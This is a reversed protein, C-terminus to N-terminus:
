WNQYRCMQFAFKVAEGCKYGISPPHGVKKSCPDTLGTSCKVTPPSTTGGCLNIEAGVGLAFPGCEVGAEILISDTAGGQANPDIEVGGGLGAGVEFCTSWGKEGHCVKAGAGIGYYFNGGVCWLGLPDRFTVPSNGVYSYLNFQGGDFLVPDRSTWRGSAPEYDRYGFHVLGTEPDALGGAFGIPLFFGPDSDSLVAGFADHEIAKVVVGDATTVLRPSGLLDSAVYYRSGAREFAYLSGPEDYFLVTLESGSRVATVRFANGPDGYLYEVRSQGGPSSSEKAVRRDLADYSYTVALDGVHATLLEGATGYTFTDGGRSVLFGDEDMQYGISGRSVLRDQADYAAVEAVDSGLQRSTRNGNQDYGYSEVATGDRRVELLQQDADYVYDITQSTTGITEVNRSILGVGDFTPQSRYKEAGGVTVRRDNFHAMGDYGQDLM